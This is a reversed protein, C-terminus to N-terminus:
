EEEPLHKATHTIGHERIALDIIYPQWVNNRVAERVHTDIDQDKPQENGNYTFQYNQITVEPRPTFRRYDDMEHLVGDVLWWRVYWSVKGGKLAEAVIIATEHKTETKAARISGEHLRGGYYGSLSTVVVIFFVSIISFNKRNKM